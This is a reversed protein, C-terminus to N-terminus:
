IEVRKFLQNATHSDTPVPVANGFDDMIYSWDEECMYNVDYCGFLSKYNRTLPNYGTHYCMNIRRTTTSVARGNM